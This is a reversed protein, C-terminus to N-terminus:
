VAAAAKKRKAAYGLGGLALLAAGFMPASAPLPVSSVRVNDLINGINDSAGLETFTLAAPAGTVTATLTFMSLGATSLLSYTQSSNGLSVLTSNIGDNRQSGGLDFSITYTGPGFLTKSAIQSAPDNSAGTTGDLDLYRGNGPYFDFGSGAGIVDVSGSVINFNMLSTAPVGVPESNFNDSFIVAAEASGAGLALLVAASAVLSRLHRM